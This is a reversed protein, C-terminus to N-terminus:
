FNLTYRNKIRQKKPIKINDFQLEGLKDKLMNKKQITIEPTSVMLVTVVKGKGEITLDVLFEGAIHNKLCFEKLAILPKTAMLAIQAKIEDVVQQNLGASASEEPNEKTTTVQEPKVQDSKRSNSGSNKEEQAVLSTISIFFLFSIIYSVRQKM